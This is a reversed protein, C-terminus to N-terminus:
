ILGSIRRSAETAKTGARKQILVINLIKVRISCNEADVLEYVQVQKCLAGYLYQDQGSTEYDFNPDGLVAM